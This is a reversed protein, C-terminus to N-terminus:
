RFTFYTAIDGLNMGYKVGCGVACALTAWLAVNTVFRFVRRILGPPPYDLPGGVFEHLLNSM